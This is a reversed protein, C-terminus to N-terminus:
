VRPQQEVGRIPTSVRLAFLGGRDALCRTAVADRPRLRLVIRNERRHRAAIEAGDVRRGLRDDAVAVAVEGLSTNTVTSAANNVANMTANAASSAAGTLTNNIASMTANTANAIGSAAGTLTNNVANATGNTANSIAGITANTASSLNSMMQAMALTTSGLVMVSVITALLLSIKGNM